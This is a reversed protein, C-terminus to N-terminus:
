DILQCANSGTALMVADIKNLMQNCTANVEAEQRNIPGYHKRLVRLMVMAYEAAFAPCSKTFTQYTAGAGTGLISQSRCSVGEKFETLFCRSPNARYEDYLKKLEASAGISNYSSQFLGAEAESSPRRSGASVDWGECYKGSSERMGLGIGLTFLSKLTDDGTVNIELGLTKFKSSYYSLADKSTIGSQKQSMRTGPTRRNTQPDSLRCLSRAYTLAMGKMYGKPAKGRSKWSYSTCSSSNVINFLSSKLEQLTGGVAVQGSLGWLAIGLIGNQTKSQLRSM